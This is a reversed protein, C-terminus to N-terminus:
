TRLREGQTRSVEACRRHLSQAQSALGGGGRPAQFGDSNIHDQVRGVWRKFQALTEGPTTRPFDHDLGHRIHSIVAEHPYVDGLRGVLWDHPEPAVPQAPM